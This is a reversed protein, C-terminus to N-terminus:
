RKMRGGGLFFPAPQTLSISGSRFIGQGFYKGYDLKPHSQITIITIIIEQASCFTLGELPKAMQVERLVSTGWIGSNYYQEESDYFKCCLVIADWQPTNNM